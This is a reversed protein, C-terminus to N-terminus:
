TRMPRPSRAARVKGRDDAYTVWVEDCGNIDINEIDPDDLLEQLAGAGYM